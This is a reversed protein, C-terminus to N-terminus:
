LAYIKSIFKGYDPKLEFNSFPLTYYQTRKRIFTRVLCNFSARKVVVVWFFFYLFFISLRSRIVWRGQIILKSM